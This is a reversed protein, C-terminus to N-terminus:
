GPEDLLICKWGYFGHSGDSHIKRFTLAVSSGIKVNSKNRGTVQCLIRGGGELDIVAMPTSIDPSPYYFENTFSFVVGTRALPFPEFARHQCSPCISVNLTIVGECATCRKAQLRWLIDKERELMPSSSFVRYRGADETKLIGKFNLYDAYNQLPETQSLGPNLAADCSAIFDQSVVEVLLLDCGNSSNLWLIRQGVSGTAVVTILSIVPDTSGLYGTKATTSPVFVDPPVKLMRALPKRYVDTPSDAIFDIDSCTIDLKACSSNITPSIAREFSQQSAFRADDFQLYPSLEPKWSSSYAQNWSYGCLYRLGAESRSLLVAAAGDGVNLEEYSGVSAMQSESAVVLINQHVGNEILELGTLVASTTSRSSGTLDLTRCDSPLGLVEVLLSSVQKGSVPVSTSCFFLADVEAFERLCDQAAALAMTVTDEDFYAVSRSRKGIRSANWAPPLAHSELRSEPIYVGIRSMGPKGINNM